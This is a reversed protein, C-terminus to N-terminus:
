HQFFANRAYFVFGMQPANTTLAAPATARPHARGVDAGRRQFATVPKCKMGQAGQDTM